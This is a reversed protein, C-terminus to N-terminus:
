TMMHTVFSTVSPSTKLSTVLHTVDGSSHRFVDGFTVDQSFFSFLSPSFLLFSPFSLLLLSFSFSFFLSFRDLLSDLLSILYYIIIM